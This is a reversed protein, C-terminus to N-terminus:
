VCSGKQDVIDETDNNKDSVNSGATVSRHQSVKLRPAGISLCEILYLAMKFHTDRNHGYATIKHIKINM